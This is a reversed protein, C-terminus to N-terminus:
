SLLFPPPRTRSSENHLNYLFRIKYFSRKEEYFYNFIFIYRLLSVDYKLYQDPLIVPRKSSDSTTFYCSDVNKWHHQLLIAKNADASSTNRILKKSDSKKKQHKLKTTGYAIFKKDKKSKSSLAQTPYSQSNNSQSASVQIDGTLVTNKEVYFVTGEVITIQSYTNIFFFLLLISLLSQTIRYKKIM